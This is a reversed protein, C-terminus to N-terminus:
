LVQICLFPHLFVLEPLRLGHGSIKMWLWSVFVLYNKFKLCRASYRGFWLLCLFFTWIPTLWSALVLQSQKNHVQRCDWPLFDIVFPSKGILHNLMCSSSDTNIPFSNQSKIPHWPSISCKDWFYILKSLPIDHFFKCLTKPSQVEM